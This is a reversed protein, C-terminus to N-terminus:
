TRRPYQGNKYEASDVSAVSSLPPPLLEKLAKGSEWNTCLTAAGVAPGSLVELVGCAKDVVLLLRDPEREYVNSAKKIVTLVERGVPEFEQLKHM